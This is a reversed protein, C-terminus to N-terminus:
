GRDTFRRDTFRRDTFRTAREAAVGLALGGVVDLPLHAGVYVRTAGVAVAGLWVGPRWARPLGPAAASAMAAAVAAHGSPYGLGSQERGILRVVAVESAPRGRGAFPKVAKSGLWALVAVVVLRHSLRRHGAARVVAGTAVGGALSGLQMVVWAPATVRGDIGNLAAFVRFEVTHVADRRAALAGGAM